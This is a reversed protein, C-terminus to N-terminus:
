SPREDDTYWLFYTSGFSEVFLIQIAELVKNQCWKKLLLKAIPDLCQLWHLGHRGDIPHVVEPAGRFFICVITIYTFILVHVVVVGLYQVFILYDLYSQEM